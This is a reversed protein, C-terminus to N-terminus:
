FLEGEEFAKKEGLHPKKVNEAVQQAEVQRKQGVLQFFQVIPLGFKTPTNGILGDLQQLEDKTLFLGEPQVTNSM